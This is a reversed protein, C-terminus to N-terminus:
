FIVVTIIIIIIIIILTMPMAILEIGHGWTWYPLSLTIRAELPPLICLRPNLAPYLADPGWTGHEMNAVRQMRACRLRKRMSRLSYDRVQVPSAHTRRRAATVMDPHKGLQGLDAELDAM